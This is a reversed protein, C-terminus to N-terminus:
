SGRGEVRMNLRYHGGIRPHRECLLPPSGNVAPSPNFDLEGLNIRSEGGEESQYCCLGAGSTAIVANVATESVAVDIAAM